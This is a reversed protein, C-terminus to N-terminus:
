IKVEAIVRVKAVCKTKEPPLYCSIVYRKLGRDFKGDFWAKNDICLNILKNTEEPNCLYKWHETHVVCDM